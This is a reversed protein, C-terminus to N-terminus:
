EFNKLNELIYVDLVARVRALVERGQNRWTDEADEPSKASYAIAGNLGLKRALFLSRSAHYKQTIIIPDSVGFKNKCHVVSDITRLGSVDLIIDKEPVGMKILDERMTAPENYYRSPNYGSVIIKKVKGINYLLRASDIRHKYYPNIKILVDM